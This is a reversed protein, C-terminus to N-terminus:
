AHAVVRFVEELSTVGATVKRLAQPLLLSTGAATAAEEIKGQVAGSFILEEMTRDMCLVEYIGTRGRYGSNHCADCGGPKMIESPVEIGSRTFIEKESELPAERTSCHPCILRLLRQAVVMSLASAVMSKKVGLDLLRNIASAAENTHLTSLVLHGTISARLALEATEQDRIEGVLIIDPDQRMAARLANGSPLSDRGLLGKSRTIATDAIETNTALITNRTTNIIKM